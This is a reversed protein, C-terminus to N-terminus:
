NGSEYWTFEYMVDINGVASNLIQIVYTTDKKYIRETGSPITFSPPQNGVGTGGPIFIHQIITGGSVGIPNNFFQAVATKTLNRNLSPLPMPTTGPTTITPSEILFIDIPGDTPVIIRGIGHFLKFEPTRLEVFVSTDKAVTEFKNFTQYTQGAFTFGRLYPTERFGSSSIGM